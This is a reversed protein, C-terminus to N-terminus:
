GAAHYARKAEYMLDDMRKLFSEADDNPGLDTYGASASLQFPAAGSESFRALEKHIEDVTTRALEDDASPLLVVFEDGAFRIPIGGAPISRFLVDGMACIAQDGTSHGFTDNINKFNNIDLMIGYLPESSSPSRRELVGSLYRRNFLGSLQDKFLNEAYTQMQVFTLAIAVSVWSTTIGYFLFQVIVGALCPGVFYQVPFFHLNVGQKKSRYVLYISYGFYFILSVYGIAAGPGRSYVNDASVSFLFGTGFLNYVISAVEIWWPIAILHAIHATRQYNRHIRLDVYLCWLLGISVTGLFCLSNSLYNILRAGAFTQGDVLFSATECVAGLLNVLCMSDCLRDMDHTSERNKRRCNLLSFMTLVAIGNAVIIEKIDIM